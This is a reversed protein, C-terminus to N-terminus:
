SFYTDKAGVNSWLVCPISDQLMKLVPKTKGFSSSSISIHEEWIIQSFTIQTIFILISLLKFKM